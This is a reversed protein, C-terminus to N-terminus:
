YESEFEGTKCLSNERLFIWMSDGTIDKLPYFEDCEKDTKPKPDKYRILCKEDNEDYRWGRVNNWKEDETEYINLCDSKRSATYEKKEQEHKLEAEKQEQQMEEIKLRESSEIKQKEIENKVKVAETYNWGLVAVVVLAVVGGIVLPNKFHEM